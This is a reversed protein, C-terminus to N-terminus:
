VAHALAAVRPLSSGVNQACTFALVQVPFTSLFAPTFHVLWIKGPKPAGELPNLYGYIVFIVLYATRIDM